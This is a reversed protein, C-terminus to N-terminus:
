TNLYKGYIVFVRKDHMTLIMATSTRAVWPALADATMTNVTNARFIRNEADSSSVSNSPMRKKYLMRPHWLPKWQRHIIHKGRAYM